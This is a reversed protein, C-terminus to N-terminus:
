TGFLAFDLLMLMKTRKIKVRGIKHNQFNGSLQEFNSSSEKCSRYTTSTTRLKALLMKASLCTFM